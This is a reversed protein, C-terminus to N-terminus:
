RIDIREIRGKLPVLFCSGPRSTRALEVIEPWRKILRWSMDLLRTGGRTWASKLFFTTLGSQIWIQREHRSSLIRRDGSIIIWNGESSLRPLWVEDATGEEFRDRLCVIEFGEPGLMTHLARALRPPLNNDFFFRM